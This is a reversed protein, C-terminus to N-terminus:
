APNFWGFTGAQKNLVVVSDTLDAARGAAGYCVHLPILHEERPHCFRAGPAQEWNKLKEQRETESVSTSTLVDKLWDEFGQNMARSQPTDAAFFARM